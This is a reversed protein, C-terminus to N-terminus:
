RGNGKGTVKVVGRHGLLNTGTFQGEPGATAEYPTGHPNCYYLYNGVDEFEYEFPAEAPPIAFADDDGDEPGDHPPDFFSTLTHQPGPPSPPGWTWRVTTGPSVRVARPDVAFPGITEGDVVLPASFDIEVEDEGTRDVIGGDWVKQGILTPKENLWAGIGNGNGYTDPRASAAGTFIGGVAASMGLTKLVTRRRFATKKSTM